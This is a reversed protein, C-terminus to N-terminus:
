WTVKYGGLGTRPSKIRQVRFHTGRLKRGLDMLEGAEEDQQAESAYSAAVQAQGEADEGIAKSLNHYTQGLVDSDDVVWVLKKGDLVMAGIQQLAKRARYEASAGALSRGSYEKNVDVIQTAALVELIGSRLDSGKPLSAATRILKNRLESM